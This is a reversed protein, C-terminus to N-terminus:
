PFQTQFNRSRPFPGSTYIYKKKGTDSLPTKCSPSSTAHGLRAGLAAPSLPAPIPAPPEEEGGARSWSPEAAQALQASTLLDLQASLEYSIIELLPHHNAGVATM